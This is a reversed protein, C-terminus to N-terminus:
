ERNGLCCVMEKELEGAAASGYAREKPPLDVTRDFVIGEGPKGLVIIRGGMYVAERPDHTVAILLRKERELLSLCLDMLNIRLPIDLSQFPEDMFLAPAPWAFARAMSVRQVQGGSLEKPYTDAKEALFVLSLFHRARERAGEKGFEKELPVSINELITLWPLLRPEQFMFATKPPGETGASLDGSVTEIKEDDFFYLNGGQPKLLGGLLKLLTTKGCGSSGLVLLPRGATGGDFDASFNAFIAKGNYGFNLNSVKIKM